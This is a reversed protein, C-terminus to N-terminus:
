MPIMRYGGVISRVMLLESAAHGAKLLPVLRNGLRVPLPPPLAESMFAQRHRLAELLM